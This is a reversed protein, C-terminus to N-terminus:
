LINEISLRSADRLNELQQLGETCSQRLSEFDRSKLFEELSNINIEIEDMSRHILIVHLIKKSRNWNEKVTNLETSMQEEDGADIAKLLENMSDILTDTRKIFIVEASVSIAVALCLLILAIVFRKM